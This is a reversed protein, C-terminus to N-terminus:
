TKRLRKCLFAVPQFYSYLLFTPEITTKCIETMSKKRRQTKKGDFEIDNNIDLSAKFSLIQSLRRTLIRGTGMVYNKTSAIKNTSYSSILKLDKSTARQFRKPSQSLPEMNIKRIGYSKISKNSLKLLDTDSIKYQDLNLKRSTKLM